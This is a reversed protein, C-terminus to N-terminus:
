AEAVREEKIACTVGVRSLHVLWIIFSKELLALLRLLRNNMYSSGNWLFNSNINSGRKPLDNKKLIVWLFM